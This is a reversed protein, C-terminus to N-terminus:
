VDMVKKVINKMFKFGQLFNNCGFREVDVKMIFENFKPITGHEFSYFYSRFRKPLLYPSLEKVM